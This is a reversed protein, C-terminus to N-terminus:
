GYKEKIGDMFAKAAATVEWAEPWFCLDVSWWEDAYGAELIAPVLRDFDLVGTGFPAHTSTEGDHLTNDSDILHVHGIRGTLKHALEVAGGPLTEPPPAQRAAVVSVMHAHCADYLAQFNPHGVDEFLKLIESPKNFMFGPEFEWILVVGADAALEACRRWATVVRRWATDYDLGPTLPPGDVTDVRIKMAGLAVAMELNRRFVDLYTDLPTQAPPTATFDPGYGAVGLGLDDLRQKLERRAEATPYLDPHAHPRFGCLEIGEFGLESVRTLTDDLSVPHAEYPGFIYAWSGIAIKM